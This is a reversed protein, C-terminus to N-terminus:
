ECEEYTYVLLTDNPHITSTDLDNLQKIEYCYERWDLWSPKYECSIDYLTDGYGVAITEVRRNNIWDNERQRNENTKFGIAFISSVVIITALIATIHRKM